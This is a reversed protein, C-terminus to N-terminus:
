MPSVILGNAKKGYDSRNSKNEKVDVTGDAAPVVEVGQHM